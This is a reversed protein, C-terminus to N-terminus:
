DNIAGPSPTVAVSFDAANDDTDVVSWRRALSQDPSPDSAPDGEGLFVETDDFSGYGLADLITAGSRLRVNDPGNQLDAIDDTFDAAALLTPDTADDDVILVIGDPPTTGALTFSAIVGGGNGNLSEVVVGDLSSGPPAWLEIWVQDDGGDDDYLVESLLAHPPGQCGGDSCGDPCPFSSPRYQCAGRSCVGVDYTQLAAGDCDPAPPDECSVPAGTCAGGDCADRETCPDDDDCPDDDFDAAVCTAQLLVDGDWELTCESTGCQASSPCNDDNAQYVCGGSDPDCRADACDNTDLECDAPTEICQGDDCRPWTCPDGDLEQCDGPECAQGPGTTPTEDGETITAGASIGTTLSPLTDDSTGSESGPGTSSGLGASMSDLPEGGGSSCGAVACGALGLLVRFRVLM